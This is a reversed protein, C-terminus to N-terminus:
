KRSQYRAAGGGKFADRPEGGLKDENGRKKERDPDEEDEKARTGRSPADRALCLVNRAWGWQM